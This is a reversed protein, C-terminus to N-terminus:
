WALIKRLKGLTEKQREVRAHAEAEASHDREGSTPRSAGGTGDGGRGPAFDPVHSQESGSRGEQRASSAQSIHTTFTAGTGTGDSPAMSGRAIAKSSSPPPILDSIRPPQAGVDETKTAQLTSPRHEMSIARRVIPRKSQALAEIASEMREPKM